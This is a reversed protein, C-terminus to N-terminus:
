GAICCRDRPTCIFCQGLPVATSTQGKAYDRLVTPPRLAKLHHELSLLSPDKSSM